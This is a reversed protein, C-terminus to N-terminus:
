GSKLDYGCMRAHGAAAIQKGASTEWVVPTSYSARSLRPTRWKVTGSAADLAVVEPNKMEDRVLIVTGDAIIPSVGSGFDGGMRVTPMEFRWLEKGAVDYCLLGCSGFYSVIRQGDTASTSAAPSGETKQHVEIQKAPAEKRWAEHGDTRDYAVTYLKGAEFATLVLENGVVIPSSLGAPVA